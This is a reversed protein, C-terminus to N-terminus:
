DKLVSDLALHANTVAEWAKLQTNEIYNAKGVFFNYEDAYLEPLRSEWFGHIGIQKTLQGNYNETTHLHYMLM